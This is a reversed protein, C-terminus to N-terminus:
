DNEKEENDNEEGVFICVGRHMDNDDMDKSLCSLYLVGDDHDLAYKLDSDSVDYEYLAAHWGCSACDGDIDWRETLRKRAQEIRDSM